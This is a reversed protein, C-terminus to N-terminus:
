NRKHSEPLLFETTTIVDQASGNKCEKRDGPNEDSGRLDTM